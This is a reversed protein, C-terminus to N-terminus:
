VLEVYSVTQTGTGVIGYVASTVPLTLSQGPGLIAGTSSTVGSLGIYVSVTASPNTILVGARTANAAIIQTATAGVSVQGTANLSLGISSTILENNTDVQLPEIKGSPNEAGQLLAVTPINTGVTADAADKTPLTGSGGGGEIVVYGPNGPTFLIFEGDSVASKPFQTASNPTPSPM